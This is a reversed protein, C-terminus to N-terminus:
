KKKMRQEKKKEKRRECDFANVRFFFPLEKSVKVCVYVSICVYKWGNVVVFFMGKKKKEKKKCTM